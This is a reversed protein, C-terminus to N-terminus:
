WNSWWQRDSTMLDIGDDIISLLDDSPDSDNSVIIDIIITM